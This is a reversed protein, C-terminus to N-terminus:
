FESRVLFRVIEYPTATRGTAGYTVEVEGEWRGAADLVTDALEAICMGGAGAVDYPATEDIEGSPLRKGIRKTCTVTVTEVAGVQRVKLTISTTGASLDLVLGTTADTLEILVEAAKNAVLKLVPPTSM